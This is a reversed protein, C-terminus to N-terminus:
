RSEVSGDCGYNMKWCTCIQVVPMGPLFYHPCFYFILFVPAFCAISSVTYDSLCPAPRCVCFHRKKGGKRSRM